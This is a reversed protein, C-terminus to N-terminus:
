YNFDLGLRDKLEKLKPNQEVMYDYIDSTSYLKKTEAAAKVIKDITIYDNKLGTRLFQVLEMELKELFSVELQSDLQILLTNGEKKMLEKSLILKDTDSPNTLSIKFAAWAKDLEQQSFEHTLKNVVSIVEEEKKPKKRGFISPTEKQSDPNLPQRQVSQNRETINALSVAKDNGQGM